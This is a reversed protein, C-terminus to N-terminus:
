TPGISVLLSPLRCLPVATLPRPHWDKADQESLDSYARLQSELTSLSKPKSYILDM